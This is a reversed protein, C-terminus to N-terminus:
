SHTIHHPPEEWKLDAQLREVIGSVMALEEALVTNQRKLEDRESIVEALRVQMKDFLEISIETTM